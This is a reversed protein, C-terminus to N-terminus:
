RSILPLYFFKGEYVLFDVWNSVKDYVPDPPIPPISLGNSKIVAISYLNPEVLLTDTIITSIATDIVTVPRAIYEHDIDKIWIRVWDESAGFNAGSIILMVHGSGAPVISPTLHDIFPDQNPSVDSAYSVHWGGGMLALTLLIGGVIISVIWKIKTGTSM